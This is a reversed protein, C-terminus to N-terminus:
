QGRLALIRGIHPIRDEFVAARDLVEIEEARLFLVHELGAKFDVLAPQEFERGIAGREDILRLAEVEVDGGIDLLPVQHVEM